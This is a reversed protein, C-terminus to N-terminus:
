FSNNRYVTYITWMVEAKARKAAYEIKQHNVGDAHRKLALRGMLGINIDKQCLRCHAFTPGQSSRTVWFSYKGTIHGENIITTSSGM